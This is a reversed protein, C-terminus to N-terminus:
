PVFCLFDNVPVPTFDAILFQEAGLIVAPSAIYVKWSACVLFQLFECSCSTDGDLGSENLSDFLIEPVSVPMDPLRYKSFKKVSWKRKVAIYLGPM